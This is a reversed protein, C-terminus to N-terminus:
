FRHALRLSVQGITGVNVWGEYRIGAEFGGNFAYGIGPSYVFAHGGGSETSFVIGSEGEVFFGDSSYYKIGAKVPIFGTSSKVGLDRLFSKTFFANYGASITLYTNTFTNFEYKISGGIVANFADSANGIPLGGEFGVSFKGSQHATSASTTQAFSSVVAAGLLAFIFLVKKM